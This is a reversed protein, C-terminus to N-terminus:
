IYLNVFKKCGSMYISKHSHLRNLKSLNQIRQYLQRGVMM